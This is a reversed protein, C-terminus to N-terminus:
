PTQVDFRERLQPAGNWAVDTVLSDDIRVSTLSIANDSRRLALPTGLLGSVQEQTLSAGLILVLGAEAQLRSQIAAADPITGNLVFVDAQSPDTVLTFKALGLATKVSGDPGAYFVRLTGDAHAPQFFSSTFLIAILLALLPKAPRNLPM